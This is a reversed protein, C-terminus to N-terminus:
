RETSYYVLLVVYFYWAAVTFRGQILCWFPLNQHVGIMGRVFDRVAVTMAATPLLSLNRFLTVGLFSIDFSLRNAIHCAMLMAATVRKFRWVWAAKAHAPTTKRSGYRLCCAHAVPKNTTLGRSEYGAMLLFIHSQLESDRAGKCGLDDIVDSPLM